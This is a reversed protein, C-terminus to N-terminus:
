WFREAFEDIKDYVWQLPDDFFETVESRLEQWGEWFPTFEIFKSTILGQIEFLRDSWWLNLNALINGWWNLFWALLEPIDPFELDLNDLQSQIINISSLLSNYLFLAYDNAAYVWSMVTSSTASWWGTIVTQVNYTAYYVWNYAVQAWSIPTSLISWIDYESIIQTIRGDAWVLWDNFNGFYYVLYYFATYLGYLPYALYGFPFIWGTVENYADLLRDRATALQEIIYNIFWM